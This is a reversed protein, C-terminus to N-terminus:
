RAAEAEYAELPPCTCVVNRDGYTNNVRGVAPWFKHAHLSPVPYAAKQRGYPRTWQDATIVALTHPAHKLVNDEADAEGREVEAVEERISIMAEVFRDLEERPESETPEIMITGPVPWSVTPAHFGYDILRKTVDDVELGAKKFPRLDLIFEHAVRGEPGQFLVPYHTELRAKLYNANLIAYESAAQAGASGLLQLYGYSILLISAS